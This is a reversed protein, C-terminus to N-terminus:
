AGLLDGILKCIGAALINRWEFTLTAGWMAGKTTWGWRRKFYDTQATFAASAAEAHDRDFPLDGLDELQLPRSYGLALLPGLWSWGVQWFGARHEDAVSRRPTWKQSSM